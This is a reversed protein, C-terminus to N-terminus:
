RARSESNRSRPRSGSSKSGGRSGGGSRSRTGESAVNRSVQRDSRRSSTTEEEEESGEEAELNVSAEAIQTLLDNAKGEEDLTQQLLQAQDDLGLQQAYTRVTGYGAMEYHEVHQAKSILGADLVEESADEELMEKAEEILGEMGKCKKGGPREGLMEFIQELREVHGETEELHDTFAQKLEPNSANKAMRPLAKVLQKEASYLDKLEDVYLEKLSEMEM